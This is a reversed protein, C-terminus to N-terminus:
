LVEVLSELKIKRSGKILIAHGRIENKQLWEKLTVADPFSKWESAFVRSSFIEGVLCVNLFGLEKLLQLISQHEGPGAGGLELMDGLIITKETGPLQWFNRIAPEMSAPNANYADLLLTNGKKTRIVQSRNNAPEYSSIAQMIQHPPVKFYSGVAVAALINELNYQGYLRTPFSKWSGDHKWGVVLFPDKQDLRGQCDAGESTGYTYQAMGRAQEVLITNDRHLFVTGKNKRLFEYMESKARIVGELSGFGELHAKGVNTILGHDPRAIQCLRAIEGTHNAGMEIIAFETKQDLSLLTLPVGIHNNLNGETAKTLFSSAMVRCILEKTTTKGNSGTIAIIGAKLHDRHLSALNQLCELVDQVLIIKKDAKSHMEGVVALSAGSEIAQSAFQNGNFSEGKLAFFISGPKINRSDTSVNPHNLFHRYLSKISAM